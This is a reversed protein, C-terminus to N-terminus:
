WMSCVCRVLVYFFADVSVDFLSIPCGCLVSVDLLCMSYVFRVFVYFLRMSCGCRVSVNSLCICQVFVYFLCVSVFCTSCIRRVSVDFFRTLCVCLVVM